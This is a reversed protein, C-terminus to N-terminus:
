RQSPFPQGSFWGGLVVLRTKSVVLPIMPEVFCLIPVGVPFDFSTMTKKKQKRENRRVMQYTLYSGISFRITPSFFGLSQHGNARQYRPSPM